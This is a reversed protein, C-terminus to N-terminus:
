APLPHLAGELTRIGGKGSGVLTRQGTNPIPVEIGGPTDLGIVLGMLGLVEFPYDARAVYSDIVDVQQGHEAAWKHEPVRRVWLKDFLL